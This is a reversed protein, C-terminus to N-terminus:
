ICVVIFVIYLSSFQGIFSIIIKNITCDRVTVSYKKMLETSQAKAQVTIYSCKLIYCATEAIPTVFVHAAPVDISGKYIADDDDERRRGEKVPM